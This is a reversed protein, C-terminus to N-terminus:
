IVEDMLANWGAIANESAQSNGSELAAALANGADILDAIDIAGLQPAFEALPDAPDDGDIDAVPALAEAEAAEAEAAEAEAAAADSEAEPAYDAAAQVTALLAAAADGNPNDTM